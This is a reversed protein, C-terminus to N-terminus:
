LVVGSSCVPPMSLLMGMEVGTSKRRQKGPRLYVDMGVFPHLSVSQWGM